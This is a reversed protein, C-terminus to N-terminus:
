NLRFNVEIQAKVAVPTNDKKLRAPEFKWRGVAEVAKEDLGLGLGRIVTIDRTAGDADIIVSLVVTGQLKAERAEETYAPEVKEIPVPRSVEPGIKRPEQAFAATCLLAVLAM